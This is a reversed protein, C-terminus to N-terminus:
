DEEGTRNILDYNENELGEVEKELDDIQEKLSSIEQELDEIEGDFEEQIQECFVNHEENVELLLELIEDAQSPTLGESEVNWSYFLRSIRKLSSLDSKELQNLEFIM